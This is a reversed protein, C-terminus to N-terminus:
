VCVLEGREWFYANLEGTIVDKGIVVVGSESDMECTYDLTLDKAYGILEIGNSELEYRDTDVYEQDVEFGFQRFWSPDELVFSKVVEKGILEKSINTM